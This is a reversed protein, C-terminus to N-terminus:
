RVGEAQLSPLLRTFANHQFYAGVALGIITTL